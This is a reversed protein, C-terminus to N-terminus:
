NRRFMVIIPFVILANWIRKIRMPEVMLRYLWELGARRMYLPARKINGSVFDLTGGIGIFVNSKTRKMNHAIWLEQKPAGLAVMVINAGSNKIKTNHLLNGETPNIKVGDITGVIKLKPFEDELKSKAIHAIGRDGGLLFISWGNKEAERCIDYFLDAGPIRDIRRKYLKRVAWVVGTSDAICFSKKLVTRFEFNIRSELLIENNVTSIHIQDKSSIANNILRLVGNVTTDQIPVSFIKFM